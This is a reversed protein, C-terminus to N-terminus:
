FNCVFHSVSGLLSLVEKLNSAEARLTKVEDSTAKRATDGALRNKGAEL